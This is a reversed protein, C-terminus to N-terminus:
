FTNRIRFGQVTQEGGDRISLFGRSVFQSCQEMFSLFDLGSKVFQFGVQTTRSDDQPTLRGCQDLLLKITKKQSMIGDTPQHVFLRKFAVGVRVGERKGMGDPDDATFQMM